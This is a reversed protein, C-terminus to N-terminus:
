ELLEKKIVSLQGSHHNLHVFASVIIDVVRMGRFFSPIEESDVVRYLDENTSNDVFSLLDREGADYYEQVAIAEQQTGNWDGDTGPIYKRFMKPNKPGQGKILVNLSFDFVTAQHALIWGLSSMGSRSRFSLDMRNSSQIQGVLRDRWDRTQKALCHIFEGITM